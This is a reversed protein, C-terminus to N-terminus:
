CICGQAHWRDCCKQRNVCDDPRLNRLCDQLDRKARIVPIKERISESIRGGEVAAKVNNDFVVLVIFFVFTFFFLFNM